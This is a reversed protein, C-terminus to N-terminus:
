PQCNNVPPSDSISLVAREGARHVRLHRGGPALYMKGAEALIWDRAEEVTIKSDRNLREALSATFTPPMHQVALIPVRFAGDLAPIIKQLALPGGTSVGIGVAELRGIRPRGPLSSAANPSFDGSTNFFLGFGPRQNAKPSEPEATVSKSNRHFYKRSKVLSILPGLAKRLLMLSEEPTIGQPKAVFDLAGLSLARMTMNANGRDIGSVMVVDIDPYGSRIAKLTEIGDMIPMAVDMLALDPKATSIMSLATKGDPATGIVEAGSIGSVAKLIMQRYTSSDDVVLIKLTDKM